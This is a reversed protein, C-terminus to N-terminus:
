DPRDTGEDEEKFILFWEDLCDRCRYRMLDGPRWRGDEHPKSTLYCIGGCDVCPHTEDPADM